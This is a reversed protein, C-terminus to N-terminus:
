LKRLKDQAKWIEGKELDTKIDSVIQRIVKRTHEPDQRSLLIVTGSSSVPISFDEHGMYTIVGGTTIFDSVHVYPRFVHVNGDKINYVTADAYGNDNTGLRVIDGIQLESVKVTENM